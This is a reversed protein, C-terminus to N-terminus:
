WVRPLKMPNGQSDRPTRDVEYSNKIQPTTKRRKFWNRIAAAYDKYSEGKAKCYDNMEDILEKVPAEGHDQVLKDHDEKKLKVHSGFSVLVCPAPPAEEQTNNEQKNKQLIYPTCKGQLASGNARSPAECVNKSDEDESPNARSPAEFKSKSFGLVDEDPVAYWTTRDFKNKSFNGEILLKKEVLTKIAVRIQKETIYQLYDSIEKITEYMWTRGEHINQKKAKNIKLWYVIHNYVIAATVGIHVALGTDFSNSHGSLLSKGQLNINQSTFHIENQDFEM